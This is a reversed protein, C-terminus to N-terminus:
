KEMLKKIKGKQNGVRKRTGYGKYAASYMARNLARWRFNKRKLATSALNEHYVGSLIVQCWKVINPETNSELKNTSGRLAFILCMWCIDKESSIDGNQIQGDVVVSCHKVPKHPNQQLHRTFIFTDNLFLLLQSTEECQRWAFTLLLFLKEHAANYLPM